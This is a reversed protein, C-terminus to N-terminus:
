QLLYGKETEVAIDLGTLVQLCYNLSWRTENLNSKGGNDVYLRDAREIWEDKSLPKRASKLAETIAAMRTYKASPKPKSPEPIEPSTTVALNVGLITLTNSTNASLHDEPALEKAALKIDDALQAKTIKKGTKIPPELAMLHNFEKAVEELQKKTVNKM